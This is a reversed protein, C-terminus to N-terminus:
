IGRMLQYTWHVTKIYTHSQLLSLWYQPQLVTYHLLLLWQSYCRVTQYCNGFISGGDKQSLLSGIQYFPHDTYSLNHKTQSTVTVTTLTMNQLTQLYVIHWTRCHKYISQIHWTRCHKCISQIHWTRCHRYISQTMNQLTQLYFM